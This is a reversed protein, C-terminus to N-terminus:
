MVPRYEIVIKEEPITFDLDIFDLPEKKKYTVGLAKLSDEIM